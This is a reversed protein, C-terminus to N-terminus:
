PRKLPALVTVQRKQSSIKASASSADVTEPLLLDLVVAGSHLVHLEVDALEFSVADRFAGSQVLNLNHWLTDSFSVIVCLKAEKEDITLKWELGDLCLRASPEKQPRSPSQELLKTEEKATSSSALGQHLGPWSSDEKAAEMAEQVEKDTDRHNLEGLYEAMGRDIFDQRVRERLSVPKAETVGTGNARSLKRPLRLEAPLFDAPRIGTIREFQAEVEEPTCPAEFAVGCKAKHRQIELLYIRDSACHASGDPAEAAATDHPALVRSRFSAPYSVRTQLANWVDDVNAHADESEQMCLLVRGEPELLEASMDMLQDLFDPRCRAPSCVILQFPGFSALEARYSASDEDQQLIRPGNGRPFNEAVNRALLLVADPSATQVVRYNKHLALALGVAGIGADCELVATSEDSACAHLESDLQKVLAQAAPLLVGGVDALEIDELLQVVCGGQLQLERRRLRSPAEGLAYDRQLAALRSRAMAEWIGTTLGPQMELVQQGQIDLSELFGAPLADLLRIPRSFDVECDDSAEM